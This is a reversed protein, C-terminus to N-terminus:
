NSKDEIEIVKVDPYYVSNIICAPIAQGFCLHIQGLLKAIGYRFKNILEALNYYDIGSSSEKQHIVKDDRIKKLEKFYSWEKINKQVKNGNCMAPIWNEIKHELSVKKEKTDELLDNPNSKNWKSARMNLYAEIASIGFVIATYYTSYSSEEVSLNKAKAASIFLEQYNSLTIQGPGEVEDIVQNDDKDIVQVKGGKSVTWTPGLINEFLPIPKKYDRCLEAFKDPNINKSLLLQAVEKKSKPRPEKQNEGWMAYVKIKNIAQKKSIKDPFILKHM